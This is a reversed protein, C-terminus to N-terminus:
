INVNSVPCGCPKFFESNDGTSSFKFSNGILLGLSCPKTQQQHSVCELHPSWQWSWPFVLCLSPLLTLCNSVSVTLLMLLVITFTISFMKWCELNALAILSVAVIQPSFGSNFNKICHEKGLGWLCVPCGWTHISKTTKMIMLKSYVFM